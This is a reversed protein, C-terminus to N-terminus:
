SLAKLALEYDPEQSTDPVQETHLVTGEEGIVIVARSLLGTLPGTKFTVGYDSGFNSRFTSGVVVSEIGEAGCFRGLAFPLDASICIVVCNEIAAAKANFKRVSAACTPTDISPFINLVVRKGKFSELSLDSLDTTTVVFSPAITGVEPLDGETEVTEGKRKVIAM